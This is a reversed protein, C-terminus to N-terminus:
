RDECACPALNVGPHRWETTGWDVGIWDTRTVGDYTEDAPVDSSIVGHDRERCPKSRQVLHTVIAGDAFEAM